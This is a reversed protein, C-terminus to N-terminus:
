LFLDVQKEIASICIRFRDMEESSIDKAHADMRYKNIIKMMLEFEDKNDFVNRFDDWKDIIIKMLDNFYIDVIKPNFVDNYAISQINRNRRSNNTKLQKIIIDKATNEGYKTMLIMKIMKRLRPELKNRRESIEQIMEDNSLNIKKYKNKNLLYIKLSDILFYYNEIGKAIINYGLLHNIYSNSLEVFSNFTDYDSGALYELMSYEDKYYDTLVGIIMEMFSGYNNDFISKCKNYVTIDIDVPRDYQVTQRHIISCLHRMLFPHGGFDDTLKPYINESFRLGMIRGLKRVMERTDHYEFKSIYEFPIQNFIPNDFGKVKSAEICMSNTGVILFSFINNKQFSARISQWFYIFDLGNRWHETPSINFTINEIEDFVLLINKQMKKSIRTIENNFLISADKETYYKEEKISLSISQNNKVNLYLQYIVYYLAENWRRKHFSTDQCDIIVVIGGQKRLVREIGHIVSTKGSKRLGFLGSSENSEHRNVINHILNNRGFFFIDKKLPSEFAFLDRTYFYERMRNRIFFDDKGQFEHYSFPIIVKMEKEEKLIDNIKVRVDRDKSIVIACIKEIRLSQYRKEVEDIADLTRAQFSEYPSFILIIERELNFLNRYNALPVMTIYKYTPIEGSRNRGGIKNGIEIKNGTSIFWEASFKRIIIMEDDDFLSTNIANHMGPKERVEISKENSNTM